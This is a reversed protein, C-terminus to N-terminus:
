WQNWLGLYGIQRAIPVVVDSVSAAPRGVGGPGHRKRHLVNKAAFMPGTGGDSLVPSSARTPAVGM